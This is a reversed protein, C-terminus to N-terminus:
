VQMRMLEQFSEVLKNRVEVMMTFALGSERMSIMAQHLNTSEGTMLQRVEHSAVDQKQDVARVFDRALNEVGLAPAGSLNPLGSRAAGEVGDNKWPADTPRQTATNLKSMWDQADFNAGAKDLGPLGATPGQLQRAQEMARQPDLRTLLSPNLASISPIAAM